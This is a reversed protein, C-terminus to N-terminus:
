EADTVVIESLISDPVTLKEQILCFLSFVRVSNTYRLRELPLIIYYQVTYYQVTSHLVGNMLNHLITCSYLIM